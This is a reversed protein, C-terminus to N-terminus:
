YTLIMNFLVSYFRSKDSEPDVAFLERFGEGGFLVAGSARFVVNQIFTPRYILAASLDWGIENSCLKPKSGPGPQTGLPLAACDNGQNRLTAVSSTDAFRLYNLNTSLRLEPTVDADFGGGILILGPNIFNSQGQEKSSRLSNLLGNRGSLAVGGGGILPVAQRVWYSTDAGAFQPNEFIADFGQETKDYPDKDGSAYLLSGRLRLWSLDISPEVAAFWARIDAREDRTQSIFQSADNHGYAYYLSHTLNFRGFHGDGSYGLYTVNYNHPRQAGFVAPREQFGNRNFYAAEDGERNRNHLIAFQSTYGVVPMDQRFLTAIFVDDKRLPERIDNLGSNTDKEVRRFWGLNYQWFNNDRTGFIRAGFQNDQFVFGRFDSTIPQIGVRLSDFDYRDSVNRLHYDVFAEQMGLFPDQRTSGQTPDIRLIRDEEAQVRNYQLVPTLRLEFDPPKFATDGKILSFSPILTTAFLQQDVRGFADLRKNADASGTLSVPQPFSRPEYVTDSIVSLNFFYDKAIPRDAKLTNQNYPDWWKENVGIAEILRWRDPVPLTERPLAPAPPPVATPDIPPLAETPPEPRAGPRRRPEDQAMLVGQGAERFEFFDEKGARAEQSALLALLLPLAAGYKLTRSM